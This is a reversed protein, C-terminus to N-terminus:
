PVIYKKFEQDLEGFIEKMAKIKGKAEYLAQIDNASLGQVENQYEDIKKNYLDAAVQRAMQITYYTTGHPKTIIQTPTSM